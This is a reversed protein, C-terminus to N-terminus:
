LWVLGGDETQADADSSDAEEVQSATEHELKRVSEELWPVNSHETPEFPVEEGKELWVLPGCTQGVPEGHSSELSASRSDASADTAEVFKLLEAYEDHGQRSAPLGM